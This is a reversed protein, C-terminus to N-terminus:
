YADIDQLKYSEAGDASVALAEYRWSQGAELASTNALADAIKTGSGDLVSFTVQVYNYDDGSENRATGRMYLSGIQDTEAVIDDELVIGTSEDYYLANPYPEEKSDGGSGGAAQTSPDNTNSVSTSMVAAETVFLGGIGHAIGIMANRRAPQHKKIGPLNGIGLRHRISPIFLLGITVGTLGGIISISDGMILSPISLAIIFIGWLTAATKGVESMSTGSDTPSQTRSESPIEATAKSGPKRSQTSASAVGSGTAETGCEPCFKADVALESGCNACYSPVREEDGNEAM